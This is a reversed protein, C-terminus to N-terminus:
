DSASENLQQQWREKRRQRMEGVSLPAPEQWIEWVQEAFKDWRYLKRVKQASRKGMYRLIRQDQEVMHTMQKALHEVDCEAWKGLGEFKPHGDWAKVLEYNVPYGWQEIDDAWWRTCIVPGGTAAFERTPLSFGEGRAPWVMCDASVYFDQLQYEDFEAELVEINPHKESIGYHFVGPRVKIILRVDMRDGFARYFARMALDWGKRTGRDGWTIFTYPNKESPKHLPRQVYQFTESVGLPIVHVPKHVGNAQMVKILWQAPVIVAKCQNLSKVWGEPLKTSEWMTVAVTEGASLLPHYSERLTPYGLMLGGVQPKIPQELLKQVAESQTDYTRQVQATGMANTYVGQKNLHWILELAMRGYGDYPDYSCAYISVIESM